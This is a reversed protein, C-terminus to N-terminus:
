GSFSWQRTEYVRSNEPMEFNFKGNMACFSSWRKPASDRRTRTMTMTMNQRMMAMKDCREKMCHQKTKEKEDVDKLMHTLLPCPTTVECQPLSTASLGSITDGPIKTKPKNTEMVNSSETAPGQLANCEVTGFPWFLSQELGENLVTIKMMSLGLTSPRTTFSHTEEIHSALDLWWGRWWWVTLIPTM